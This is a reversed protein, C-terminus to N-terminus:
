AGRKSTKWAKKLDTERDNLLYDWFFADFDALTRGSDRVLKEIDARSSGFTQAVAEARLSLEEVELEAKVIEDGLIPYLRAQLRARMRKVVAARLAADFRGADIWEAAPANGRRHQILPWLRDVDLELFGVPHGDVEVVVRFDSSLEPGKTPRTM